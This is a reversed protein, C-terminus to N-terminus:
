SLAEAAANLTSGVSQGRYEDGVQLHNFEVAEPYATRANEGVGAGWQLVASGLPEQGQWAVLFTTRGCSQHAHPM